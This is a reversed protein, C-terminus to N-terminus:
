EFEAAVAGWEKAVAETKGLAMLENYELQRLMVPDGGNSIGGANIPVRRRLPSDVFPSENVNNTVIHYGWGEQPLCVFFCGALISEASVKPHSKTDKTDNQLLSTHPVLGRSALEKNLLILPLQNAPRILPTLGSLFSIM